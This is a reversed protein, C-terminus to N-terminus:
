NERRPPHAELTELAARVAEIHMEGPFVPASVLNSDFTQEDAPIHLFGARPASACDRLANLVRYMLYNCLYDGASTSLKAPVGRALLATLIAENPLSASLLLPANPL